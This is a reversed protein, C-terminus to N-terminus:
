MSPGSAKAIKEQQQKPNELKPLKFPRARLGEAEALMTAKDGIQGILPRGTDPLPMHRENDLFEGFNM